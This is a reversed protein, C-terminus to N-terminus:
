RLNILRDKGDHVPFELGREATTLQILIALIMMIFSVVKMGSYIKLFRFLNYFKSTKHLNSISSCDLGM